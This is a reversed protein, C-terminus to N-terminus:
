SISAFSMKVTVYRATFECQRPMYDEEPLTYM